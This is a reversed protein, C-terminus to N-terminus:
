SAHPLNKKFPIGRLTTKSGGGGGGGGVLGEIMPITIQFFQIIM